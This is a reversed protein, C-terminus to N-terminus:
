QIFQRYLPSKSFKRLHFDSFDRGTAMVVARPLLCLLAPVCVYRTQRVAPAIRLFQFKGYCRRYLQSKQSNSVVQIYTQIYTRGTVMAVARPLLHLLAPSLTAAARILKLWLEAVTDLLVLSMAGSAPSAAEVCVQETVAATILHCIQTHTYIYVYLNTLKNSCIYLYKFHLSTYIYTYIHIYTYIRLSVYHFVCLATKVCV